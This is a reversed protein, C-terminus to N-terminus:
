GNSPDQLFSDDSNCNDIPLYVIRRQNSSLALLEGAITKATYKVPVLQTDDTYMVSLEIGRVYTNNLSASFIIM